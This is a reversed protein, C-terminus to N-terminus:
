KLVESAAQDLANQIDDKKRARYTNWFFPRAPQHSTGFEFALAYDYPHGSGERIEKTTLEGGAQVVFELDSNGPVVVCSDELDGTEEPLQELARLTERQAASLLDAQERVTDSLIERAKEPLDSLYRALDDNDSV